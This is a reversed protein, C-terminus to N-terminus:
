KASLANHVALFLRNVDDPGFQDPDKGNAAKDFIEFWKADHKASAYPEGLRDCFYAFAGDANQPYKAWAPVAAKPAAQPAVHAVPAASSTPTAPQTAPRAAPVPAGAGGQPTAASASAVKRPQAAFLARAKSGWKALIAARDTTAGEPVFARRGRQRNPDHVYLDQAGNRGTTFNLEVEGVAALNGFPTGNADPDCFWYFSEIGDGTWGKAWERIGAITMENFGGEKTTLWHRKTVEFDYGRENKYFDGTSPDRVAFKVDLFLRGDKEYFSATTPKGGYTGNPLGYTFPKTNDYAM